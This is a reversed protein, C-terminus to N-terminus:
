SNKELQKKLAANYASMDGLKENLWIKFDVSEKMIDKIDDIGLPVAMDDKLTNEQPVGLAKKLADEDVITLVRLDKVTAGRVSKIVDDVLLECFMNEDHSVDKQRFGRIPTEVKCQEYLETRRASEIPAIELELNTGPYRFFVGRVTAKPKSINKFLGM